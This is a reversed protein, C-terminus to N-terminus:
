EAPKQFIYRFYEKEGCSFARYVTSDKTGTFSIFSKKLLKPAKEHISRIKNDHDLEMAKIVNPTIDKKELMHLRSNSLDNHLAEMDEMGRFDAYAFYGGPTLVRGVEALFRDMHGYCYSSEVNILVDFSNDEFPLSEADGHQFSLGAFCHHKQCFDIAKKSFDVGIFSRPKFQQTIYASGGGRGCGVELINKGEIKVSNAVYHYLQIRLRYKEEDEDIFVEGLESDLSAFGYNMFLLEDEWNKTALYQYWQRWLSRKVSPSTRCLYRFTETLFKM